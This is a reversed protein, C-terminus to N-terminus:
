FTSSSKIAEVRVEDKKRRGCYSPPKDTFREEFYTNDAGTTGSAIENTRKAAAGGAGRGADCRLAHEDEGGPAPHSRRCRLGHDGGGPRPGADEERM